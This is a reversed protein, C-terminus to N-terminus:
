KSLNDYFGAITVINKESSREYDLRQEKIMNKLEKKKDKFVKLLSRNNKVPYYIGDKYVYIKSSKKFFYEWITHNTRKFLVYTDRKWVQCDGNYLRVYYGEPMFLGDASEPKSYVILLSNIIAYDINDRQVLVSFNKGPSLIALEETHQNLRISVDTYIRGDFSLVGTRFEDTELYPHNVSTVKYRPEVKGSYIVSHTNATKLYSNINDKNIAGVDPFSNQASACFIVQLCCIIM